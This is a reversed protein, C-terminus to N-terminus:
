PRLQHVLEALWAPSISAPLILVLADGLQLEVHVPEMSKTVAVPVFAPKPSRSVADSNLLQQRRKSFYRPCLDHERCFAAASQGSQKHEHFLTHWEAPTRIIM